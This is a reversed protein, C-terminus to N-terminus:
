PEWLVHTITVKKGPDIEFAAHRGDSTRACVRTGPGLNDIRLRGKSHQISGCGGAGISNDTAVALRVGNM